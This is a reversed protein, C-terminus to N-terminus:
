GAIALADAEGTRIRVAHELNMVFVKGDGVRGTQASQTITAVLGEVLDDPAAIEIRIKPLLRFDQEAGRYAESRGRQRGYGRVETVTLGSIDADALGDLVNELFSPRIIATIMKM